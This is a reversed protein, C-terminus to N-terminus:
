PAVKRRAEAQPLGMDLQYQNLARLAGVRVTRSGGASRQQLMKLTAEEDWVHLCHPGLRQQDARGGGLLPVSRAVQSMCGASRQPWVPRNEITHRQPPFRTIVVISRSM